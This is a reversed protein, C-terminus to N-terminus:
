LLIFTIACICTHVRVFIYMLTIYRGMILVLSLCILMMWLNWLWIYSQGNYRYSNRWWRIMIYMSIDVPIYEIKIHEWLKKLWNIQKSITKFIFIMLTLNKIQKSLHDLIRIEVIVLQLNGPGEDSPLEERSINMEWPKRLYKMMLPRLAKKLAKRSLQINYMCRYMNKCLCTHQVDSYRNFIFHLWM